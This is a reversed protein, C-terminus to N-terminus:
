RINEKENEVGNGMGKECCVAAIVPISVMLPYAYRLLVVPSVMLTLWLIGLLVFPLLKETKKRFILYGFALCLCWFAAGPSFLMAIVPYKQYAGGQTWERYFSELGPLLSNREIFVGDESYQDKGEESANEYEIHFMYAGPDPYVMDPYWFGLNMSLFADVYCGPYRIGLEAWLKIFGAPDKEFAKRNFSDKVNDAVRPTYKEYDPIYNEVKERFEETVDEQGYLMARSIQQMPVSLIEAPSGKEVDLIKYVPGTYIMWIGLVGIALLLIRKWYKRGFILFVPIMCAFIYIGTNRFACALLWLGGYLIIKKWNNWFINRDEAMEATQFVVLLFFGSFIVDKTATFSFVGHYPLIGYLILFVWRLILPLKKKLKLLTFSFVGSMFLMQFLSYFFLGTEYSHFVGKGLSLFWGILYTHLVPHHALMDGTFYWKSQFVSDITYVGPYAAAIGPLWCVFIIVWGILFAKGSSCQKKLLWREVTSNKLKDMWVPWVKYVWGIMIAMFPTVAAAMLLSYAGGMEDYLYYNSGVVLAASFLFGLIWLVIARRNFINEWSREYLLFVALFLPIAVVSNRIPLPDGGLRITYPIAAVCAWALVIWVLVKGTKKM